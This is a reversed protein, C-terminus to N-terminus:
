QAGGARKLVAEAIVRAAEPKGLAKASSAMRRLKEPDGFLLKATEGLRAGLVVDPCLVAAGARELARANETQHDATAFPYPVLVSPVGACTLEAVTTAGARCVALDCAAYAYEMEEIYQRVCVGAERGAVASIRGFDREGTQWLVQIQMAALDPLLGLMVNNISTAGASGGFVLLTKREPSLGFRRAGEGRSVKGVAARVPNGSVLVRAARKLLERTGDFAVHVEDVFGSLIRTTMGPVSNQEQLVTPMGLGAAALVVPGCVYGGTGVVAAPRIRLLIVLSQVFAVVAKVPVLLTSIALKRRLGSIWITFLRYGREPVVRAEIRGKTGVFMVEADPRLSRIQEAIALAPYLHGGTGGGAFLVTLRGGRPRDAPM